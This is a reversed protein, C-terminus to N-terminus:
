LKLLDNIISKKFTKYERRRRTLTAKSIGTMKEVETYSYSNLLEMAHSIQAKSQKRPKGEKFDPRQKAAKGERTREIILNREMEAVALMTQLFFRGMTTNELLDVNLVHVKVGKTFLEEVIEIGERVNCDLRDLKM